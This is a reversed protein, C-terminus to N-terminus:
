SDIFLRWEIPDYEHGAAEIVSCDDNFFVSKKKFSFNKSNM